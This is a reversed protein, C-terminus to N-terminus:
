LVVCIFCIVVVVVYRLMRLVIVIKPQHVEVLKPLRGDMRCCLVHQFSVGVCYCVLYRPIKLYSESVQLFIRIRNLLMLCMMCCSMCFLVCFSVCVKNTDSKVSEDTEDITPCLDSKACFCKEM